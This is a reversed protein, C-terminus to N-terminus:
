AGEEAARELAHLADVGERAERVIARREEPELRGDAGAALTARQADGVEAGARLALARLDGLASAAAPKRVLDWGALAVYDRLVAWAEPDDLVILVALFEGAELSPSGPENAGSLKGYLTTLPVGLNGSRDLFRAALGKMGLPSRRAADFLRQRLAEWAGLFGDLDHAGVRTGGSSKGINGASTTM